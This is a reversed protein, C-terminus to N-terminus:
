NLSYHNLVINNLIGKPSSDLLFHKNKYLQSGNKSMIDAKSTMRPLFNKSQVYNKNM